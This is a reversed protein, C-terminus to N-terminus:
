PGKAPRLLEELGKNCAEDVSRRSASVIAPRRVPLAGRYLGSAEDIVDGDVQVPQPSKNRVEIQAGQICAHTAPSVRTLPCGACTYGIWTNALSFHWLTWCDMLRSLTLCSIHCGDDAKRLEELHHQDRLGHRAGVLVYRSLRLSFLMSM